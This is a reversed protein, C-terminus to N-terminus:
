EVLDFLGFNEKAIKCGMPIRSKLVNPCKNNASKIQAIKRLVEAQKDYQGADRYCYSLMQRDFNIHLSNEGFAGEMAVLKECTSVAKEYDEMDWYNYRLQRYACVVEECVSQGQFAELVEPLTWVAFYGAIMSLLFINFPKPTATLM